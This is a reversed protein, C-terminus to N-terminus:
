GRRQWAQLRKWFADDRGGYYDWLVRDMAESTRLGSVGTSPCEGQGLLDAVVLRILPAQVHRPPPCALVETQKGRRLHVEGNGFCAWGIRGDTGSIEIWDEAVDSAFNWLSVGAAGGETAFSVSAVDEVDYGSAVNAATGTVRQLPGLIFDLADLLHSALDLFLGAGATEAQVRWGLKEVAQRHSPSAHRHSVSSVRGIAGQEVLEKVKVFAPLARRYYAVFLKKGAREFAAVMERCEAASRAMPKEVYCHKGAAAVQLAYDRHSGPPTAIYVADVEPDEILKRADDYWRGVGHRRAYDAAKAGDRRMVAVLRSGEVNAFAPGSKVETVDGCGIIGWRVEM